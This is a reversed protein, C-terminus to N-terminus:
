MFNKKSLVFRELAKSPIQMLDKCFNTFGRKNYSINKTKNLVARSANAIKYIYIYICMYVGGM